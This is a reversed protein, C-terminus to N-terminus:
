KFQLSSPHYIVLQSISTTALCPCDDAQVLRWLGRGGLAAPGVRAFIRVEQTEPGGLTYGLQSPAAASSQVIRVQVYVCLSPTFNEPPHSIYRPQRRNRSARVM